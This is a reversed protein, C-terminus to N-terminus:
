INIIRDDIDMSYEESDSLSSKFEMKNEDNLETSYKLGNPALVKEYSKQCSM